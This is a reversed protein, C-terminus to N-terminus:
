PGQAVSRASQPALSLGLYRAAEANVDVNLTTLSQMDPGPVRNDADISALRELVREAIDGPDSTVSMLAGLDLLNAGFVVVQTRHRASYSMIERVVEPSLVRNDPLLWLGQIDQTMRKFDYLAEKDSQVTRVALEIQASQAAIQIERVLQEQGPGVVIGIRELEPALALWEDLQLNFPPLLKVGKSSASILDHDQYNFVQCFVLPKDEIERAVSAALLGVAVLRDAEAAEARIRSINAPNGDLNYISLPADGIRAVIEEAIASFAPIDNSLLLATRVPLPPPVPEPSTTPLPAPEAPTPAVPAPPSTEVPIEVVPATPPLTTCGALLGAVILLVCSLRALTENFRRFHM